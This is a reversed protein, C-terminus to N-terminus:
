ARPTRFAAAEPPLALAERPLRGGLAGGPDSRWAVSYMGVREGPMLDNCRQDSDIEQPSTQRVRICYRVPGLGVDDIKVSNKSFDVSKSKKIGSGTITYEGSSGNHSGGSWTCIVDDDGPEEWGCSFTDPPTPKGYPVVANSSSVLSTRNESVTRARFQLKVSQGNPLGRVIQGGGDIRNWSGGGNTSYEYVLESERWGNTASGRPANTISVEGSTGTAEIRGGAPASLSGLIRVSGANAATSSNPNRSNYATVTFSVPQSSYAIDMVVSNKNGAVTVSEGTSAQVTYSEITRGNSPASTWRVTAQGKGDSGSKNVSTNEVNASFAGPRGFPTVPASPASPESQGQRNTAVLTAQVSTGNPVRVTASTAGPALQVSQGPTVNLTLATVPSGDSSVRNWSFTVSGDGPTATLGAPRNPVIDMLVPASRTPTSAGVANYATVEFVHDIGLTRGDLQCQTVAGCHKEDGQTVDRVVVDTVPSGNFDIVKWMVTASNKNTVRAGLIQVPSPKGLVSLKFQGRVSREALGTADMLQYSVYIDGTVDPPISVSVVTGSSSAKVGGVKSSVTPQGAISLPKDPFPNVAFKSVDVKATSGAKVTEEYSAVQILPRDTKVITVPVQGKVSNHGDDISVEVAGASGPQSEADAKVSLVSGSVKADIGKPAKVVKYTFDKPDDGRDQDTTMAALNASVPKTSGAEVQVPTPTFEPPRNGSPKVEVPLQLTRVLGSGDNRDKGDTVELTIMTPGSFDSQSTFTITREDTYLPDGNWGVSAAVKSPDTMIVSRGSRTLIYDNIKIKKPKGAEAVITKSTDVVPETQRAPPVRVVAASEMGTSDKVKYLVIRAKDSTKITLSKDSNVTVGEDDSEVKEDYVDGDPDTDNALVDVRVKDKGFAKDRSVSDDRAIPALAPADPSVNVTLLGEAFGGRGDTIRYSVPYSGATKPTKVIVENRRESVKLDKAKSKASGAVLKPTDGSDPDSDNQTVPVSVKTGPRVRVQDSVANPPQNTKPAPVVGVRVRATATKGYTDRVIYQFSDTGPKGATYKLSDGGVEVLGLKPSEGPGVLEVSDGEPDIGDLPVTINLKEGVVARATINKPIPPSDKEADAATVTINVTASETHGLSDQVTYVVKVSGPKKGARFRVVNDSLFVEGQDKQANSQLNPLVTMKLNGPSRDNALVRVSGVDGARVVLQDDALVPPAQADAAPVPIVKVRGTATQSGNSVTYTFTEPADLGAPASVRAHEHNYPSVVLKSGPETQVSQLTLVGGGPDSDNTLVDVLNQGGAPLMAIDNEAIPTSNADREVAEVRIIGMSSTPGDSVFYTQYYTGPKSASVTVTSQDSSAKATLGQPSPGLSVLKLSDGNADTDNALPDVTTSEGAVVRVLDGNARPPQNVGDTVEVVVSGNTDAQGDSVVLNVNRVGAGQGLDSISVSGTERFSANLGKTGAASKLYIQDGDPDIWDGLVQLTTTGGSSLKASTNIRQVPPANQSFPHVSVNVTATAKGGRGDDAEYTFSTSGTAGEPVDIQLAQGNRGPRVTGFSPQSLAKVTLIDGDEDNDNFTVPLTTSRGPRVGFSDNEAKPPHNEDTRNPDQQQTNLDSSDEKKDDDVDESQNINNWDNVLVMDKDPLWVNGNAVDNLVIIKRNTRFRVSKSAELKEAPRSVDDANGDCDRVFRGTNAWAAYACGQHLVPPAASGRANPNDPDAAKQTVAGDELSVRYLSTSSAVLADSSKPGPEQLRLGNSDGLSVLKGDPLLLKGSDPDLVVPKDGVSSIQLGKVSALEDPFKHEIRTFASGEAQMTRLVKEKASVVHVSGDKGVAMTGDEVGETTPEAAEPSFSPLSKFGTTWVKGAKSDILGVTGGGLGVGDVTGLQQETGILSKAPDVAALTGAEMNRYLVTDEEQLVDFKDTKTRDSADISQSPYNVHGLMRSSQNTVWVGGDNLSLEARDIGQSAAIAAGYALLIAATAGTSVLRQTRRSLGRRRPRPADRTLDRALDRSRPLSM